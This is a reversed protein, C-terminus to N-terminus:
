KDITIEMAQSVLGVGGSATLDDDEASVGIAIVNGSYDGKGSDRVAAYFDAASVEIGYSFTVENDANEREDDITLTQATRTGDDAVEDDGEDETTDFTGDTTGTVADDAADDVGDDDDDINESARGTVGVSAIFRLEDDDFDADATDPGRSVAYFDVRKFPNLFPVADKADLDNTETVGDATDDEGLVLVGKADRSYGVVKATLEITDEIDYTSEDTEFTFSEIGDKVMETGTNPPTAEPFGATAALVDDVDDSKVSSYKGSAHAQDRALVTVARADSADVATFAVLGHVTPNATTTDTAQLAVFANYAGGADVSKTLEDSNYGDVAVPNM